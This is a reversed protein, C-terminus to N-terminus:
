DECSRWQSACKLRLQMGQAPAHNKARGFESSDRIGAGKSRTPRRRRRRMGMQVWSVFQVSQPCTMSLHPSWARTQPHPPSDGAVVESPIHNTRSGIVPGIKRFDQFLWPGKDRPVRNVVVAMRIWVRRVGGNGRASRSVDLDRPAGAATM